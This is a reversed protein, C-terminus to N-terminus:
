FLLNKILWCFIRINWVQVNKWLDVPLVKRNIERSGARLTSVLDQLCFGIGESALHYLNFALQLQLNSFIIYNQVIRVIVINQGRQAFM